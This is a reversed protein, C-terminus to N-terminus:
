WSDDYFNSIMPATTVSRAETARSRYEEKMMDADQWRQANLFCLRAAYYAVAEDFPEPIVDVSNDDALDTPLCVCDWDMSQATSPIMWLYVNANVGQQYKAWKCVQGLVPVAYSRYYAQIDVWAIQPIAPKMGGWEVAISLVDLISAYGIPLYANAAQFTYTEQGVVTQLLSGQTATLSAGTGTADSITIQLPPSYNSGGNTVTVSSIVGLAGLVATLVAGTGMGGTVTLTPNTYGHGPLAVTVGTIPGEGAVLTRVCQTDQAVRRRARNIYSVMDSQTVTAYSKDHILLQTEAVYESLLM